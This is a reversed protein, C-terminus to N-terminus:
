TFAKGTQKSVFQGMTIFDKRNLTAVVNIITLRHGLATEPATSTASYKHKGVSQSETANM